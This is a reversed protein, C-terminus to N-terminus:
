LATIVGYGNERKYLVCVNGQENRYVFFNHSLLEMQIVAEEETMVLAEFEKRREIKMKPNFIREAEDEVDPAAFKVFDKQKKENLTKLKRLKRKFSDVASDISAAVTDGEGYGRVYHKGVNCVTVDCKYLNKNAENKGKKICVDFVTDEDLMKKVRTLEKQALEEVGVNSAFNKTRLIIQM